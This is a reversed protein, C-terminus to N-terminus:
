FQLIKYIKRKRNFEAYKYERTSHFMGRAAM